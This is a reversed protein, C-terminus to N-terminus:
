PAKITNKKKRDMTPSSLRPQKSNDKYAFYFQM